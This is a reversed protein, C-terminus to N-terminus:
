YFSRGQLLTDIEHERTVYKGMLRKLAAPEYPAFHYIHMGPYKARVEMMQDVFDEFAKKEEADTTAWLHHYNGKYVWGFLYERGTTGVFPDGEFDFYVDGDTPEPLKYLGFDPKLELVEHIPLRQVRSEFQVRAQERLRVYTEPTGKSPKQTLPIPLNCGYIGAYGYEM